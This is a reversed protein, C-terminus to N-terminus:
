QQEHNEDPSSNAVSSALAGSYAAVRNVAQQYPVGSKNLAIALRSKVVPDDVVAKMAAAAGALFNSGTVAKVAGATIPTGIGGIQHNAQRQVARNLAPQLDYAKSLGQNLEHLEPFANELEEKLGRALAKQAEISASKLEGYSKDGLNEYTGRKMAQADVASMPQAPQAPSGPTGPNMIPNGQADLLGTPRPPTGPTAPKAGQEALFQQKSDEIATLDQSANVQNAARPKIQDARTAVANPDITRGPRAQIEATVKDNLDEILSSLKEAGAKSVPIENELGAQVMNQVRGPPITTSPKLASQYAEEPTKGLLATRGVAKGLAAPALGGVVGGAIGGVDGALEAQDPNAGVASAVSSAAKQGGIGGAIGLGTGIPAAVAVAPLTAVAAPTAANMFGSIVRHLGKAIDGNSIDHVGGGIEGGSAKDYEALGELMGPGETSGPLEHSGQEYSKAGPEQMAGRPALAAKIKGWLSDDSQQVPKAIGAFPDSIPQAISAFPDASASM